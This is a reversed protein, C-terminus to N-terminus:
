KKPKLQPLQVDAWKPHGWRRLEPLHSNICSMLADIAPQSVDAASVLASRTARLEVGDDQWIYTGNPLKSIQYFKNLQEDAMNVLKVRDKVFIGLENFLKIPHGGVIVMADIDGVLVSLISEEPSREVPTWTIGLQTKITSSTFWTGSGVVGVSVRKGELDKLSHVHANKNALVTIDERYMAMIPKISGARADSGVVSTMADNQVLAFRHGTRMAPQQILHNVNDLSGDTAVIQINLNQCAKTMDEAFRYYTGKPSGTYITYLPRLDEKHSSAKVNATAVPWLLALAAILTSIFRMVGTCLM